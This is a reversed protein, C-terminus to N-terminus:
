KKAIPLAKVDLSWGHQSCINRLHGPTVGMLKALEPVSLDPRYIDRWDVWARFDDHRSPMPPHAVDSRTTGLLRMASQVAAAFVFTLPDRESEFSDLLHQEVVMSLPTAQSYLYMRLSVTEPPLRLITFRVRRHNTLPLYFTTGGSFEEIQLAPHLKAILMDWVALRIVEYSEDLPRAPLRWRREEEHFCVWDM